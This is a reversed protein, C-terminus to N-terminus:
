ELHLFEKTLWLFGKLCPEETNKRNLVPTLNARLTQDQAVLVALPAQVPISSLKPLFVIVRQYNDELESWFSSDKWRPDNPELTLQELEDSPTTSVFICKEKSANWFKVINRLLNPLRPTWSYLPHLFLLPSGERTMIETLIKGVREPTSLTAVSYRETTEDTETEAIHNATGKFEFQGSRWSFAELIRELQLINLSFEVKERELIQENQILEHLKLQKSRATSELRSVMDKSLFQFRSVVGGLTETPNTSVVTSLSGSEFHLLKKRQGREYFLTGTAEAAAYSFIVRAGGNSHLEGRREMHHPSALHLFFPRQLFLNQTEKFVHSLAFTKEIKLNPPPADGKHLIFKGEFWGLLNFIREELQLILLREIEDENLVRNERLANLFRIEWDSTNPTPLDIKSFLEAIQNSFLFGQSLLMDVGEPVLNSHIGVIEGKELFLHKVRNAREFVMRGTFEEESAKLLLQYSPVQALSGKLPLEKPLFKTLTSIIDQMSM